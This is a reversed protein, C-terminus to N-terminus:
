VGCLRSLVAAVHCSVTVAYETDCDCWLPHLPLLLSLTTICADGIATDAWNCM